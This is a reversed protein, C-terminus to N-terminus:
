PFKALLLSTNLPGLKIPKYYNSLDHEIRFNIVKIEYLIKLISAKSRIKGILKNPGNM